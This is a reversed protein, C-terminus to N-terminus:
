ESMSTATCVAEGYSTEEVWIDSWGTEENNRSTATCVIKWLIHEEDKCAATCVNECLEREWSTEVCNRERGAEENETSADICIEVCLTTCRSAAM